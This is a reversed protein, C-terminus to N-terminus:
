VPGIHDTTARPPEAAVATHSLGDREGEPRGIKFTGEWWDAYTQGCKPCDGMACGSWLISGDDQRDGDEHLQVVTEYDCDCVLEGVNRVADADVFPM